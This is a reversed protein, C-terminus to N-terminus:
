LNHAELFIAKSLKSFLEQYMEPENLKELKSVQGYNNWVIRQFTVRVSTFGDTEGSPFTVISVKIKQEKDIPTNGGGMAAIAVALFVQGADTADREKSAVILGLDTESEDLNFGLDQLLSAIASLIRVEDSTEYLRTQLQRDELTMKNMSLANKSADVCGQFILVSPVLLLLCLFLKRM